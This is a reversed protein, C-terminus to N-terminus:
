GAPPRLRPVLAPTRKKYAQYAPDERWKRDGHAELMRIGSIRTLLLWVFIPSVLTLHQWGQLAPLAILAIGVWLLIEGFYNPHRCRAWLGSSIFREQNEAAARFRRKQHDAVVEIVFGLAWLSAGALAPWGLPVTQAATMAALGAALTCSVWLGQLTWTMFFMAGNTKIRALRRDFGRQLVRTFLFTGLRAAWVAVLAAILWSRGDFDGRAWLALGVLLLYTLSGSLDFFHEKQLLYAPAFALWQLLFAVAVAVAFLPAGDLIALGDVSGAWALLAAAVVAAFAGLLYGASDM